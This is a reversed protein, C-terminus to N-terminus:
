WVCARCVGESCIVDAIAVVVRIRIRRGRRPRPIVVAMTRRAADDNANADTADDAGDDGDNARRRRGDRPSRGEITGGFAPTTSADDM